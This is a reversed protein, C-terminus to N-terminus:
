KTKAAVAKAVPAKANNSAPKPNKLSYVVFDANMKLTGKGDSSFDVSQLTTFRAGKEVQQLFEVLNFYDGSLTLKLPFAFAGGNSQKISAPPKLSELTIKNVQALQSYEALLEPVTVMDPIKKKTEELKLTQLKLFADYNSNQAAFTQIAALRSNAQLLQTETKNTDDRLPMIFQMSILFAFFVAFIMMLLYKTNISIKSLYESM